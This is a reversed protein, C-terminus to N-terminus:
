RLLCNALVRLGGGDGDPPEFVPVDFTNGYDQEHQRNEVSIICILAKIVVLRAVGGGEIRFACTIARGFGRARSLCTPQFADRQPRQKEGFHSTAWSRM